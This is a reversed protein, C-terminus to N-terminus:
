DWAGGLIFRGSQAIPAVNAQVGLELDGFTVTPSSFRVREPQDAPADIVEEIFADASDSSGELQELIARLQEVLQEPEVSAGRAGLTFQDGDPGSSRTFSIVRAEFRVSDEGPLELVITRPEDTEYIGARSDGAIGFAEASPEGTLDWTEVGDAETRATPEPANQATSDDDGYTVCGTPLVLLVIVLLICAGRVAPGVEYGTWPNM